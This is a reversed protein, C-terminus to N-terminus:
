RKRLILIPSKRVALIQWHFTWSLNSFPTADDFRAKMHNNSYQLSQSTHSVVQPLTTALRSQQDSARPVAVPVGNGYRRRLATRTM